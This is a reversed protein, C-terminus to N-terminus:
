EGAPEPPTVGLEQYLHREDWIAREEVIKGNAFHSITIGPNTISKGTPTIGMLDGKHTGRFTWLLAISDGEVVMEEITFHADPFATRYLTVVQKYGEPGRLRAPRVGGTLPPPEVPESAALPADIGRFIATQPTPPAVEPIGAALLATLVLRCVRHASM